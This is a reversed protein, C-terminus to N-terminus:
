KSSDECFKLCFIKSQFSSLILSLYYWTLVCSAKVERLLSILLMLCTRDSAAGYWSIIAWSGEWPYQVFHGKEETCSVVVKRWCSLSVAFFSLYDGRNVFLQSAWSNPTLKLSAWFFIDLVRNINIGTRACDCRVYRVHKSFSTVCSLEPRRHIWGGQAAPPVRSEAACVGLAEWVGGVQVTIVRSPCSLPLGLRKETRGSAATWQCWRFVTHPPM